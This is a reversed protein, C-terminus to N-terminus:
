GRKRPLGLIIFKRGGNDYFLSLVKMYSQVIKEYLKKYEDESFHDCTNSVDNIGFWVIFASNDATWSTHMKHKPNAATDVWEQGQATFAKAGWFQPPVLDGDVTSAGRAFNYAHTGSPSMDVVYDLWKPTYTAPQDPHTQNSARNGLPNQQSPVDGESEFGYTTYSDGFAFIYANGGPTGAVHPRHFKAGSGVDM